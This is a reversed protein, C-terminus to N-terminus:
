TWRTGVRAIVWSVLGVAGDTLRHRTTRARAHHLTHGCACCGVPLGPRVTPPPARRVLVFVCSVRTAIYDKESGVEGLFIMGPNLPDKLPSGDLHHHMYGDIGAAAFVGTRMESGSRPPYGATEMAEWACQMFVRHQPDMVKAEAPGIGFFAHDFKDADNIAYAAPVWEENNWVHEPVGKAKYFEPTLHRVSDKGVSLNAWLEEINDAGPFRGSM